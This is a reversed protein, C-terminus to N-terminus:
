SIAKESGKESAQQQTHGERVPEGGARKKAEAKAIIFDINKQDVKIEDTTYHDKTYWAAKKFHEFEYKRAEREEIDMIAEMGSFESLSVSPDEIGWTANHENDLSSKAVLDVYSSLRHMEIEEDYDHVHLDLTPKDNLTEASQGPTFENAELVVPSNLGECAALCRVDFDPTTRAVNTIAKGAKYLTYDEATIHIYNDPRNRSVIFLEREAEEVAYRIKNRGELRYEVQKRYLAGNAGTLDWGVNLLSRRAKDADKRDFVLLGKGNSRPIITYLLKQQRAYHRFLEMEVADLSDVTQVTEPVLNKFYMDPPVECVKGRMAFLMNTAEQVKPSDKSLFVFVKGNDKSMNLKAYLIDQKKLLEEFDKADSDTVCVTNSNLGLRKIAESMRTPDVEGTLKMLAKLEKKDKVNKLVEQLFSNTLSGIGKATNTGTDLIFSAARPTQDLFLDLVKEAVDDSHAM